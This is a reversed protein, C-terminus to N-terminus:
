LHFQKYADELSMTETDLRLVTGKQSRLRDLKQQVSDLDPLTEDFDKGALEYRLKYLPRGRSLFTEKDGSYAIVGNRIVVLDQCLKEVDDLLHSSFFVTTGEDRATNIVKAMQMRGDPDLGSLPEDLILLKPRHILAQAMGIRQLMGKSFQHLRYSKAFTLGVLELLEDIRSCLQRTKLNSSLRGYFLLFEEASLYRYFYPREPLYGVLNKVAMDEAPKGLIRVEGGEYKLLGLICKMTTTKGAGNGGLFGVIGPKEIQFDLGKLVQVKKLNWPHRFTKQLNKVEIVM